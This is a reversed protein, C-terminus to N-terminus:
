YIKLQRAFLSPPPLPLWVPWPFCQVWGSTYRQVADYKYLITVWFYTLAHPIIIKNKGQVHGVHESNGYLILEM